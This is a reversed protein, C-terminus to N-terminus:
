HDRLPLIIGPPSARRSRADTGPPPSRRCGIAPTEQRCNRASSLPSSRRDFTGPPRPLPYCRPRVGSPERALALAATSRATRTAAHTKRQCRNSRATPHTPRVPSSAPPPHKQLITRRLHSPSFTLFRKITPDSNFWRSKVPARSCLRLPLV